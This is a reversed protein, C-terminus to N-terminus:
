FYTNIFVPKKTFVKKIQEQNNLIEFDSKLLLEDVSCAGMYLQSFNQISCIVDPMEATETVSNKTVKFTKNNQEIFSDSIKIIFSTDDNKHMMELAKQCNIVRVMFGYRTNSEISSSQKSNIIKNLDINTPLHLEIKENRSTFRALFGLIANFGEKSTWVAEDVCIKGSGQANRIILYSIDKNNENLLYAYRMEKFVNKPLHYSWSEKKRPSMLNYNKIFENYLAEYSSTDMGEEYMTATGNFKYEALATSSITVENRIAVTDYGYKRYFYHSFPYLSSIIQGQEYAGKLFVKFIEKICGINRYEPLSCVGGIGSLDILQDDFYCNIHNNYFLAGLKNDVFAGWMEAEDDGWITRRKELDEFRTRYVLSVVFSAREKDEKNLKRAIITM